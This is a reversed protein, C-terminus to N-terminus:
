QQKSPSRSRSRRKSQQEKLTKCYSKWYEVIDKALTGLRSLPEGLAQEKKHVKNILKGIGTQKLEQESPPAMVRCLTLTQGTAERLREFSKDKAQDDQGRLFHGFLPVFVKQPLM